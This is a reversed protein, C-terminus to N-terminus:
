SLIGGLKLSRLLCCSIHFKGSSQWTKYQIHKDGSIKLHSNQTHQTTTAQKEYVLVCSGWRYIEERWGPLTHLCPATQAATGPAASSGGVSRLMREDGRMQKQNICCSPFMNRM